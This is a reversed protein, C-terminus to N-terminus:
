KSKIIIVSLNLGLPREKHKRKKYEVSVDTMIMAMPYNEGHDMVHYLKFFFMVANFQYALALIKVLIQYSCNLLHVGIQRYLLELCAHVVVGM